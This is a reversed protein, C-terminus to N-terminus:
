SARSWAASTDGVSTVGFISVTSDTCRYLVVLDSNPLRPAMRLFCPPVVRVQYVPKPGVALQEIVSWIQVRQWSYPAHRDLSFWLRPSLVVRRRRMKSLPDRLRCECDSERKDVVWSELM